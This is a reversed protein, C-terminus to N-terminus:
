SIPLGFSPSLSGVISRLAYSLFAQLFAGDLAVFKGKANGTSPAFFWGFVRLPCLAEPRFPLPLWLSILSLNPVRLHAQEYNSFQVNRLLMEFNCKAIVM